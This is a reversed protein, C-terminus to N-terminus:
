CCPWHPVQNDSAFINKRYKATTVLLVALARCSPGLLLAFCVDEHQIVSEPMFILQWVAVDLFSNRPVGSHTVYNTALDLVTYSSITNKFDSACQFDAGEM